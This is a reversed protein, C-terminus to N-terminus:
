STPEISLSQSRTAQRPESLYRDGLPDQDIVDAVLYRPRGLVEQFVRFLYSGLIGLSLLVTGMFLLTIGLLLTLGSAIKPGRVFYDVVLVALYVLSACAITSGFVLLLRHPVNTYSVLTDAALQLRRLFTYGSSGVRNPLRRVPVFAATFGMYLMLPGYLAGREPYSLVATRFRRTFARYTGISRPVDVQAFRSFSYHFIASTVRSAGAGSDDVNVTYAVDNGEELKSLLLPIHEPEDQLDADMLVTFDGRAHELGAAIAPHQGFNRSFRIGVVEVHESGLAQIKSWSDDPSGDDILLIEFRRGTPALAQLLREVLEDLTDHNRYVPVVVSLSPPEM